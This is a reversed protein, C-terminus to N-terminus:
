IICAAVETGIWHKVGSTVPMGSHFLDIDFLLTRGRKPVVDFWEQFGNNYFRTCGDQFDDNLYTLVTYRSYRQATPEYVCGTDTHIMFSQGEKVTAFMIYDAVGDFRWARGQSDTYLAPCHPSLKDWWIKSLEPDNVKGNHFAVDNTFRRVTKSSNMVYQQLGDLEAETFLGDITFAEWPVDSYQTIIPPPLM